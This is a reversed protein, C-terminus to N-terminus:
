SSMPKNLYQITTHMTSLKNQGSRAKRIVCCCLPHRFLIKENNIYKKTYKKIFDWIKELVEDKDRRINQQKFKADINPNLDTKMFIDEFPDPFDYLPVEITINAKTQTESTLFEFTDSILLEKRYPKLVPHCYEPRVRRCIFSM